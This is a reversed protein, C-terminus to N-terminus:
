ILVPHSLPKVCAAKLMPVGCQQVLSIARQHLGSEIDKLTYISDIKLALWNGPLSRFVAAFVASIDLTVGSSPRASDTSTINQQVLIRLDADSDANGFM